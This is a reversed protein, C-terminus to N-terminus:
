LEGRFAMNLISQKMEEIEKESKEYLELLQRQKQAIEELYAVIRKQEDLDPKNNKYPLPIKLSKLFSDPVRQQGVAGVFYKTAEERIRKQRLYFYIWRTDVEGIPRIVHFETSGFGIGNILGEAIACKGNEMCPTIKAFLIDGERFYTYGIRVEYLYRIDFKVITGTQEDIYKMPVFSVEIDNSIKSIENKSPNLYSIESLRIWRWGKPLEFYGAKPM